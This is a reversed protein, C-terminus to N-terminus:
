FILKWGLLSQAAVFHLEVVSKVSVNFPTPEESPCLINWCCLTREERDLHAAKV